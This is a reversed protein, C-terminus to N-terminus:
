SAEERELWAERRDASNVLEALVFILRNATEVAEPTWRLVPPPGWACGEEEVGVAQTAVGGFREAVLERGLEERHEAKVQEWAQARTRARYARMWAAKRRRREREKEAQWRALGERDRRVRYLVDLRGARRLAAEYSGAKRYGTRAIIEAFSCGGVELLWLSDEVLARARRRAQEAHRANVRERVEPSMAPM